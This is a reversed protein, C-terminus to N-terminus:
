APFKSSLTIKAVQNKGIRERFKSTTHFKMPRSEIKALDKIVESQMKEASNRKKVLALRRKYNQARLTAPPRESNHSCPFKRWVSEDSAIQKLASTIKMGAQVRVDVAKLLADDQERTWKQANKNPARKSEIQIVGVGHHIRALALFAQAYDPNAADLGLALLIANQQENILELLEITVDSSGTLASRGTKEVMVKRLKIPAFRRLLPTKEKGRSPELHLAYVKQISPASLRKRPTRNSRTKQKASMSVFWM